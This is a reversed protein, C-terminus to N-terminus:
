LYKQNVLIAYFVVHEHKLEFWYGEAELIIM